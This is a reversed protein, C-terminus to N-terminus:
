LTTTLLCFDTILLFFAAFGDAFFFGATTLDFAFRFYFSFSYNIMVSVRGM